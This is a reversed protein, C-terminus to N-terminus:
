CSPSLLLKYFTCKSLLAITVTAIHSVADSELTPINAADDPTLTAMDVSPTSPYLALSATIGRHQEKLEAVRQKAQLPPNCLYWLPNRTIRVQSVSAQSSRAQEQTRKLEAASQEVQVSPWAVNKINGNKKRLEHVQAKLQQEEQQVDKLQQHLKQLGMEEAQVCILVSWMIGPSAIHEGKHSGRTPEGSREVTTGTCCFIVYGSTDCSEKVVGVYWLVSWKINNSYNRLNKPLALRRNTLSLWNNIPWSSRHM